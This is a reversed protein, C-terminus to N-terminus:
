QCSLVAPVADSAALEPANPPNPLMVLGIMTSNMKM